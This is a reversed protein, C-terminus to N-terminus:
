PLEQYKGRTIKGRERKDGKKHTVSCNKLFEMMVSKCHNKEGSDRQTIKM